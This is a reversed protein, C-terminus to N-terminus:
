CRFDPPRDFISYIARLALNKKQAYPASDPPTGGLITDTLALISGPSHVALRLAGAAASPRFILGPLFFIPM